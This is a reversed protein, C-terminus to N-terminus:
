ISKMSGVSTMRPERPRLASLPYREEEEEEEEEEGRMRREGERECESVMMESVVRRRAM